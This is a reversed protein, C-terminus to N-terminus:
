CPCAQCPWVGEGSFPFRPWHVCCLRGHTESSSLSSVQPPHPAFSACLLLTELPALLAASASLQSFPQSLSRLLSRLLARSLALGIQSLLPCLYGPCAGAGDRADRSYSM